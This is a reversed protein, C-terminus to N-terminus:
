KLITRCWLCPYNIIECTEKIRGGAFNNMSSHITLMNSRWPTFCRRVVVIRLLRLWLQFGWLKQVSCMIGECFRICVQTDRLWVTLWFKRDIQSLCVILNRNSFRTVPFSLLICCCRPWKSYLAIAYMTSKRHYEQKVLAQHNDYFTPRKRSFDAIITPPFTQLYGIIITFATVVCM